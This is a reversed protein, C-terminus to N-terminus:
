QPTTVIHGPAGGGSQSGAEGVPRSGNRSAAGGHSNAPSNARAHSSGQSNAQSNARARAARQRAARSKPTRRGARQQAPGQRPAREGSAGDAAVAAPVGAPSTQEGAPAAKGKPAPTVKGKASATKGKAAAAGAIGAEQADRPARDRHLLARECATWTTTTVMYLGAALPVVAVTILTGFSLLPMVKAMSAMGPLAANGAAPQPAKAMTARARRFNWTAVAAILAFLGLYVLGQPGFLGGDALAETWHGGLPAGLLTHDLLGGSGTSFLHYMVFFVPLQLLTPLCGALPSSGTKAYLDATAKQLREPNGKHKRQLEALQPALATRAKEGRAAARALPHLAARVGLTFLVIAAAMAATGFLPAIAQAGHALAEGLFGFMSM